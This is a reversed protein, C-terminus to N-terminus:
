GKSFSQRIQDATMFCQNLPFDAAVQQSVQTLQSPPQPKFRGLLAYSALGFYERIALFSREHHAVSPRIPEIHPIVEFGISKFTLWARLMHPTDTILVIKKVGQPGLIAWASDAEEQTTTICTASQLGDTPLNRKELGRFVQRGNYDGMVLIKPARNNAVLDVTTAYRDGEASQERGLVVIADATGGTDPPVFRALLATSPVSFLPSVVILYSALLTLGTIVMRRRYRRGSAFAMVATFGLLTLTVLRASSLWLFITWTFRPWYTHFVSQILDLM